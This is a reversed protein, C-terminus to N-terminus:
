SARAPKWGAQRALHILTGMGVRNPPSRRWNAWRERVAEPDYKPHKASLDDFAVYGEQSGKSEHFFAMGVTNWQHWGFDNPIARALEDLKVDLESRERQHKPSRRPADPDPQNLWRYAPRGLQHDYEWLIQPLGPGPRRAAHEFVYRLVLCGIALRAMCLRLVRHDVTVPDIADGDWVRREDDAISPPFLTQHAGAHRGDARLELLTHGNMPDVIAEFRAGVAGYLWHSLPKSARGFRAGTRPLYLPALDIAEECDLDADVLDASHPGMIVGFNGNPDLDGLQFRRDPWGKTTPRKQGAGIPVLAWGRDEYLCLLEFPDHTMM